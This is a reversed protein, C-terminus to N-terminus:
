IIKIAAAQTQNERNDM